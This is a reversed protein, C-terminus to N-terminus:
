AVPEVPWPAPLAWRDQAGILNLEEEGISADIVAELGGTAMSLADPPTRSRMLYALMFAALLDGTGHPVEDRRAVACRWAHGGAALLNILEAETEGPVSTALVMAGATAAAALVEDRTAVGQGTLWGLEFRNPTILDALPLLESRIAKAADEAIYLGGPEDGIIPDCCYFLGPKAARLREVLARAVEVHAASPLYGTFVADIGGLWGNADLAEIMEGLLEPRVREGARHPYDPRNSLIITPLAVVELGLRQWAFVAASHGVHGRAVQSSLSLITPM